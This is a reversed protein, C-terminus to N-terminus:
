RSIYRTRRYRNTRVINNKEWKKMAMTNQRKSGQKRQRDRKTGANVFPVIIIAICHFVTHFFQPFSVTSFFLIYVIKVLNTGFAMEGWQLLWVNSTFRICCFRFTQKMMNHKGKVHVFSCFLTLRGFFPLTFPCTRVPSCLSFVFIIIIVFHFISCPWCYTALVYALPYDSALSLSYQHPSIHSVRCGCLRVSRGCGCCFVCVLLFCCRDVSNVIIELSHLRAQEISFVYMCM